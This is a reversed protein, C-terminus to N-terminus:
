CIGCGVTLCICCLKYLGKKGVKEGIVVDEGAEAFEKELKAKKGIGMHIGYKAFQVRCTDPMM